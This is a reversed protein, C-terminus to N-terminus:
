GADGLDTFKYGEYAAKIRRVLGKTTVSQHEKPLSEIQRLKVIKKAMYVEAMLTDYSFIKYVGDKNVTKVNKTNVNSYSSFADPQDNRKVFAMEEFREQIVSELYTKFEM